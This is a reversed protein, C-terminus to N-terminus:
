RFLSVENKVETEFPLEILYNEAISICKRYSDLFNRYQESDSVCENEVYKTIASILKKDNFNLHFIDWIFICNKGFDELRDDIVISAKDETDLNDCYRQLKYLYQSFTKARIQSLNKNESLIKLYHELAGIEIDDEDSVLLVYKGHAKEITKYWNLHPMITEDIGYYKLRSDPLKSAQKYEEQYLESGNKSVVFEVEADYPMKILHELRKLLLNGRNHTPIGITLLVNSNNRGEPTLRYEHETEIIKGLLDTDEQRETFVLRPLYEATNRHFYQQFEEECSFIKFNDRYSEWEPIKWFSLARRVDNVIAYVKRGTEAVKLFVGIKRYDWDFKILVDSFENKGFLSQIDFGEFESMSIKGNFNQKEKDFLFYEGERYPIFDILCDEYAYKYSNKETYKQFSNRFEEENGAIYCNYINELIWEKCDEKEYSLILLELAKDYNKQEFNEIALDLINNEM